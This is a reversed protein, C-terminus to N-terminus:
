FKYNININFNRGPMPRLNSFYYINNLLNNVKGGVILSSNEKKLIEFDIGSNLVNVPALSYFDINIENMYVKSQYLKQFYIAFRNLAYELNFNLLHKPTYSLIKYTESNKAITFTYNGSFKVQHKNIKKKYSVFIETGYNHAGKINKPVWLNSSGAPEWVIKNRIDIYYFTVSTNLEKGKLESGIEAQYSYEPILDKNGVIPWYLENFTPVRYNTSLNTKLIMNNSLEQEAALSVSIPISFSSNLEQRFSLSTNLKPTPLYHIAGGFSFSHQKLDSALNTKGQINEFNLFSSFKLFSSSNYNLLYNVLSRSSRGLHYNEADKDGYYRYEQTIYAAKIEQKFNLFQTEWKLLNRQNFDENRESGASPNPLGKSFLRDGYYKTTFFYIKNLDSIKYGISFDFEYNKYKGNENLLLDGNQDKYRTDIFLYDNESINYSTAAKFAWKGTGYNAKFFNSSTNFDGYSSFLQHKSHKKFDLLDNLLVVGGIAGSGYEVSGGGSKVVIEDITNASLSNFDTQGNGTANISIGNWQVSTNTASTGRFRATSTGGNGYDRFVIPSNYRLLSTFNTPNKIIHKVGLVIKKQGLTKTKDKKIGNVTVEGLSNVISDKQSNV